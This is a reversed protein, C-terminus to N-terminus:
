VLINLIILSYLSGVLLTKGQSSRGIPPFFFGPIRQVHSTVGLPFLSSCFRFLSLSLPPPRRMREEGEQGEEEAAGVRCRSICDSTYCLVLDPFLSLALTDTGSVQLGVGPTWRASLFLGVFLSFWVFRLFCPTAFCLAARCLVAYCPMAFCPTACRLVAHRLVTHRLVAHQLVVSPCLAGWGFFSRRGWPRLLM